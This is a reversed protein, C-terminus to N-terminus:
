SLWAERRGITGGIMVIKEGIMAGIMVITEGIWVDNVDPIITGGIHTLM